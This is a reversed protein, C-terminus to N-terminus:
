EAERINEVTSRRFFKCLAAACGIFTPLGLLLILGPGYSLLQLAQQGFTETAPISISSVRITPDSFYSYLFSGLILAIMAPAFAEPYYLCRIHKRSGGIARITGLEKTRAGGAAHAAVGIVASSTIFLATAMFAFYLTILLSNKDSVTTALTAAASLYYMPLPIMVAMVAANMLLSVRTRILRLLPYIGIGAAREFRDSTKAVFSIQYSGVNRLLDILPKKQYLLCVLLCGLASVVTLIGALILIVPLPVSQGLRLYVGEGPIHATLAGYLAVIGVSIPAAIVLAALSAAINEIILIASLSQKRMGMARMSGYEAFSRKYYESQLIISASGLFLSFMVAQALFEPRVIYSNITLRCFYDNRAMTTIVSSRAGDDARGEATMGLYSTMGLWEKVVNKYINDYWMNYTNIYYDEFYLDFEDFIERARRMAILNNVWDVRVRFENYYLSGDRHYFDIDYAAQVWPQNTIYDKQSQTLDRISFHYNEQHDPMVQDRWSAEAWLLMLILVVLLSATIAAMSFFRGPRRRIERFAYYFSVKFM